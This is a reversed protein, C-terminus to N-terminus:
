IGYKAQSVPKDPKDPKNSTSGGRVFYFLFRILHGMNRFEMEKRLFLSGRLQKSSNSDQRDRGGALWLFNEGLELTKKSGM